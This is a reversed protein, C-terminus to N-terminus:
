SQRNQDPESGAVVQYLVYSIEKLNGGLMKMNKSVQGSHIIVYGMHKGTGSVLLIM